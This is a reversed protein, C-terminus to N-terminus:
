NNNIFDQADDSILEYTIYAVTASIFKKLDIIDKDEYKRVYHTEDNAIWVSAKALNKLKDNDIYDNIVQGLLTGKIKEAEHENKRVCYDKILFELSKRYGMGAIQNLDTQEAVYAQNYIDCFTESLSIISEDFQKKIPIRPYINKLHLVSYWIGQYSEDNDTDDYYAIFGKNCAPCQFTFFYMNSDSNYFHSKEIPMISKNCIPCLNTLDYCIKQRDNITLYKRMFEGRKIMNKVEAIVM